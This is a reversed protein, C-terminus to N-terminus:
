HGQFTPSRKARFAALAEVMDETRTALVQSRNEIRIAAELSPADVNPQLLQKTMSIGFPSNAAIREAMSLATDLLQEEAVIQNALGVLVAEEADVFRRHVAVGVRPWPRRNASADLGSCFGRGAGTLVVARVDPESSVTTFADALESFMADTLANLRGPRNLTVTAVHPGMREVSITTYNM